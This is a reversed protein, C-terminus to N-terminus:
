HVEYDGDVLKELIHEASRRELDKQIIEPLSPLIDFFEPIVDNDATPLGPTPFFPVDALTERLTRGRRELCIKRCVRTNDLINQLEGLTREEVTEVLFLLYLDKSKTLSGDSRLEALAGQIDAWYRIAQDSSQSCVVACTAFSGSFMGDFSEVHRPLEIADQEWGAQEFAVRLENRWDSM